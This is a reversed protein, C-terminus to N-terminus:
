WRPVVDRRSTSMQLCSRRCSRPSSLARPRSCDAWVAAIRSLHERRMLPVCPSAQLLVAV